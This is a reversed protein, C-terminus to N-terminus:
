GPRAVRQLWSALIMFYASSQPRETAVANPDADSMTERAPPTMMLHNAGPVVVYQLLPHTQGVIRLREATQEAPIWPDASGLIFLMPIKVREVAAFSDIDMEGRWHSDAPNAPLSAPKPLYMQDFWPKAEIRTLADAAVARSNRGNYYGDLAKRAALMADIDSQGYGLVQLRNSMAFEMQEEAPVLPASVAVSFAARPDRTAAFTALWGGQSIGWYGVRAPDISALRRIANAGAIGDDTLTRYSVNPSGTSAGTGRRDFVLVAVGIQPLGDRLHAYLPTQALPESAGHFVVIAPNKHGTKPDYLTGHLTAGANTFTVSRTVVSVTPQAFWPVNAALLFSLLQHM